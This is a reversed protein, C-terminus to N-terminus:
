QTFASSPGACEKLSAAIMHQSRQFIIEAGSLYKTSMNAPNRKGPVTGIKIEKKEVLHQIYLVKVELHRMKKSLGKRMATSRGTSADSFLHITATLGISMMLTRVYISDAAGSGIAYYEAEGSSQAIVTQTVCTSVVLFSSVFCSCSTTSKRTIPNGAWDSDTFQFINLPMNCSSKDIVLYLSLQRTGAIYRCLKKLAELDSTTPSALAHSIRKLAYALDPREGLMYQIKGVGSRFLHHEDKNLLRPVEVRGAIPVSSVEAGTISSSKAKELNFLSLISSLYKDTMRVSFGTKNENEVRLYERGLYVVPTDSNFFEGV